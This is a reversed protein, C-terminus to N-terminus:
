FDNRGPTPNRTMLRWEGVRERELFPAGPPLQQKAGRLAIIVNSGLVAEQREPSLLSLQLGKGKPLAAYFSASYPVKSVFVVERRGDTSLRSLAEVLASSSFREDLQRAGVLATLWLLCVVAAGAQVLARDTIGIVGRRRLADVWAATFVALGPVGPLVYAFSVQKGFTFLIAPAIGWLLALWMWPCVSSRLCGARWARLALYPLLLVAPFFGGVAMLWVTGYPKAHGSGYRDGYDNALFRLANENVFFYKIFGPNKLEALIFWPLTLLLGLLVGKGWPLERVQHLRRFALLWIGIGIGPIAIAVPGKTLFGCSLAVFLLLGWRERVHAPGPMLFRAFALYSVGVFLTLLPDLMCAGSFLYTLCSSCLLMAAVLGAGRSLFASAFMGVVVVGGLLALFSPLRLAFEGLGFVKASLTAMWFFLPPKGLFPTSEGNKIMTPTVFDGSRAMEQVITAYRGESPDLLAVTGLSQLRLLLCLGCLAM